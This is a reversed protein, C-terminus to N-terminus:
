GDRVAKRGPQGTWGRGARYNRRKRGQRENQFWKKSVIRAWRPSLFEPARGRRRSGVNTFLETM